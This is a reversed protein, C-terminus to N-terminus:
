ICGNWGLEEKVGLNTLEVDPTDSMRVVLKKARPASGDRLMELGTRVGALGHPVVHPRVPKLAGSSFLRYIADLISATFEQVGYFTTSFSIRHITVPVTVQSRTTSASNDQAADSERRRKPNGALCILQPTAATSADKQASASAQLARQCLSATTSGVCDLAYLLQGTSNDDNNDDGGQVAQQVHKLIDQESGYRDVTVDVGVSRLYEFNDPSAVSLVKVGSLHALQAAYIGTIAGGGFILLWPTPTSSSSPSTHPQDTAPKHFFGGDGRLAKPKPLAFFWYLAVAATVLGTGITAAQDDSVNDPLKGLTFAKSVSCAQYAGARVDRSDSCTWVRQGIQLDNVQRGVQEVVGCVDRGLVWPFKEIGFKYLLSKFDVPNLGMSVNRLLVEDAAVIAPRPWNRHLEFSRAWGQSHSRILLAIQTGSTSNSSTGKLLLAPSVPSSSTSTVEHEGEEEGEDDSSLTPSELLDSSLKAVSQDQQIPEQEWGFSVEVDAPFLHEPFKVTSSALRAFHARGHHDEGDDDRERLRTHKPTPEVIAAM